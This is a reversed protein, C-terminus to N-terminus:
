HCPKKEINKKILPSHWSMLSSKIEIKEELVLEFDLCSKSKTQKTNKQLVKQPMKAGLYLFM